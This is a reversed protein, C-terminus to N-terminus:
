ETSLEEHNLQHIRAYRKLEELNDKADAAQTTPHRLTRDWQKFKEPFESVSEKSHFKYRRFPNEMTQTQGNPAIYEVQDLTLVEDPPTIKDAWDWFPQRLNNAAAVFEPKLEDTYTAAIKCAESQVVQQECL